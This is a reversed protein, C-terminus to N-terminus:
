QKLGMTAFQKNRSGSIKLQYLRWEILLVILVAGIAWPWLQIFARTRTQTAHMKTAGIRVEELTAVLSEEPPANVAIIHSREGDQEVSHIGSLRIPGWAFRGNRELPVTHATGDPEVVTVQRVGVPVVGSVVEGVQLPTSALVDGSRGLFDVANYIFFPFSRLYPWNSDIPDFAVHVISRGEGKYHLIAPWSSGELLVETGGTPVIANGVTAVVEEFQVYRMVPHDEKGVLMVQGEGEAYVRLAEIGLEGGFSLYRGRPLEDLSVDRTVIVDFSSATGDELLQKLEDPPVKQLTALQLGDLVTQILPPGNEAVLVRLDRPPPVVISAVNDFDLADRSMVKVQVVGSTSLEFPVFVINASGGTTRGDKGVDRAPIAVEEIGIPIGNLSLELDTVVTEEGFNTLSLFVQVENRADPNRDVSITSIGINGTTPEGIKHYLLSEGQQLAQEHLDLINGDSFLELQSSEESAMGQEEPNPNTMYARALQLADSIKSRGHTPQITDIANTLQQVSDSFPLVIEASDSFAIVMTEGGRSSFVGGGHLQEIRLIAEEKAIELRVESSGDSANMSASRDIFLVHRGERPQEGEVQPQMLALIVFLLALLQLIFLTSPRLRQFPSNAHLDEVASTWLLTSSVRLPQRRLRLFYLLLLIPLVVAAVILGAQISVFTM